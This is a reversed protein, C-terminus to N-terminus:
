ATAPAPRPVALPIAIVGAGAAAVLACFTWGRDFAAAAEEPGPTGLLAVLLAIGLVAGLQRATANLATATALRAAPVSELAVSGLAPFTLGVGAGVMVMGPLWSGLFDPSLGTRLAFFGV